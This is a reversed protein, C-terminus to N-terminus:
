RYEVRNKISKTLGTNFHIIKYRDMSRFYTQNMTNDNECEGNDNVEYRFNEKEILVKIVTLVSYPQFVM